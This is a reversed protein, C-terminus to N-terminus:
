DCLRYPNNPGPVKKGSCGSSLSLTKNMQQEYESEWDLMVRPSCLSFVSNSTKKEEMPGIEAKVLTKKKETPGTKETVIFLTFIYTILRLIM